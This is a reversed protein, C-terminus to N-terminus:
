LKYNSSFSLNIISVKYKRQLAVLTGIEAQEASYAVRSSKCHINCQYSALPLVSFFFSIAFLFASFLFKTSLYSASYRNVIYLLSRNKKYTSGVLGTAVPPM